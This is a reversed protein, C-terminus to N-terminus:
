EVGCHTPLFHTEAPNNKGVNDSRSNEGCPLHRCHCVSLGRRRSSRLPQQLPPPRLSDRPSSVATLMTVEVPSHRRFFEHEVTRIPCLSRGYICVTWLHTADMVRGVRRIEGFIQVGLNRTILYNQEIAAIIIGITPIGFFPAPRHLCKQCRCFFAISRM